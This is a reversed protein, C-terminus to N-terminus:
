LGGRLIAGVTEELTMAPRVPQGPTQRTAWQPDHPFLQGFRDGPRLPMGSSLAGGAGGITTGPVATTTEPTPLMGQAPAPAADQRPMGPLTPVSRNPAGFMPSSVGGGPITGPAVGAEVGEGTQAVPNNETTQVQEFQRLRTIGTDPGYSFDELLQKQFSPAEGTNNYVELPGSEGFDSLTYLHALGRLESESMDPDATDRLADLNDDFRSRYEKSNYNQTEAEGGSGGGGGGRGGGSGGRGRAALAQEQAQATLEAHKEQYRGMGKLGMAMAPGLGNGMLLNASMNLMFSQFKPDQMMQKLKGGKDNLASGLGPQRGQPPSPSAAPAGGLAAGVNPQAM